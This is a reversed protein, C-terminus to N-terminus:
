SMIKDLQNFKLLRNRGEVRLAMWCIRLVRSILFAKFAVDFVIVLLVLVREDKGLNGKIQIGYAKVSYVKQSRVVENIEYPIFVSIIQFFPM